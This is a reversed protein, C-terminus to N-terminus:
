STVTPASASAPRGKPGTGPLRLRVRAGGGPANERVLTGRSARALREATYLGLGSGGSKTTGLLAVPRALIESPFGPGDDCVAIELEDSVADREVRLEVRSAGFSGDGECANAVLPDLITRLGDAGGIVAALDAGQPLAVPACSFAVRPWRRSADALAARAVPLVAVPTPAVGSSAQTGWLPAESSAPGVGLLPPLRRLADHARRIADRLTGDAGRADSAAALALCAGLARDLARRTEEESVAAAAVTAEVELDAAFAALSQASLAARHAELSADAAAAWSGVMGLLTGGGLGVLAIAAFLALHPRDSALACAALIGAAHALTGFPHRPGSRILYLHYWAAVIPITALVFAGPPSSFAVLGSGFGQIAFAVALIAAGRTGPTLAGRLELRDVALVVSLMLAQLLLAPGLRLGFFERAPSISDALVLLLALV